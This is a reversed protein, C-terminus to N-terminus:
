ARPRSACIRQRMVRSAGAREIIGHEYAHVDLSGHVAELLEGPRLLFDPNRPRGFTQQGQAFTDVILVGGVDVSAVLVPLLERWLYNVMVVAAFTREPLPWPADELDAQVIELAAEHAVDALGSTDIDVATVAHGQALLHRAHRGRGSAVDLVSGGPEICAAHRVVWPEPERIGPDPKIPRRMSSTM